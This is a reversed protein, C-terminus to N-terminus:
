QVLQTFITLLSTVPYMDLSESRGMLYLGIRRTQLVRASNMVTCSYVGEETTSLTGGCVYLNIVGPFRRVPAGRAEIVVNDDCNSGYLIKSGNFYWGGLAPNFDAGSPGLGTACRLVADNSDLTFPQHVFTYDDMKNSNILDVTPGGMGEAVTTM